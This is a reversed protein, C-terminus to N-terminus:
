IQAIKADIYEKIAKATALTDNTVNGNSDTLDAKDTLGEISAQSGDQLFPGLRSLNFNGNEDTAEVSLSAPQVYQVKLEPRSLGGAEPLAKLTNNGSGVHFFSHSTASVSSHRRFDVTAGSALTYDSPIPYDLILKLTTSGDATYVSSTNVTEVSKVRRPYPKTVSNGNNNTYSDNFLLATNQFILEVVEAPADHLNTKLSGNDFYARYPSNNGTLQPDTGLVISSLDIYISETDSYSDATDAYIYPTAMMGEAVAGWFGYKSLCGSMHIRSGSEAKVGMDTFTFNSNEIFASGGNIVICGMSGALGIQHVDSLSLMNSEAQSRNYTEYFPEGRPAQRDPPNEANIISLINDLYTNVLSSIAADGTGVTDLVKDRFGDQNNILPDFQSLDLSSTLFIEYATDHVRSNGGRPAQWAMADLMRGLAARYKDTDDAPYTAVDSLIQSRNLRIDRQLSRLLRYVNSCGTNRNGAYYVLNYPDCDPGSGYVVNSGSYVINVHPDCQSSQSLDLGNKDWDTLAQCVSERYPNLIHPSETDPIHPLFGDVLCSAGGIGTSVSVDELRPYRYVTPLDLRYSLAFGPFDEFKVANCTFGDGVRLLTQGVIMEDTEVTTEPLKTTDEYSQSPQDAVWESRPSLWIEPSDSADILSDACHRIVPIVTNYRDDTFNASAVRFYEANNSDAVKIVDGRRLSFAPPSNIEIEVVSDDEAISTVPLVALGNADKLRLLGDAIDSGSWSDLDTSLQSINPFRTFVGAGEQQLGHAASLVTRERGDGSISFGDPVVLTRDVGYWGAELRIVGEADMDPRFDTKQVTNGKLATNLDEAIGTLNDELYKTNSQVIFNGSYPTQSTNLDGSQLQGTISPPLITKLRNAAVAIAGLEAPSYTRQNRFVNALELIYRNNSDAWQSFLFDKFVADFIRNLEYDTLRRSTNLLNGLEQEISYRAEALFLTRNRVLSRLANRRRKDLTHLSWAVAVAESLSALPDASTLGNRDDNGFLQSVYIRNALSRFSDPPENSGEADNSEKSQQVTKGIQAILGDTRRVWRGTQSSAQSNPQIFGSGTGTSNEEWQYLGAPHTNDGKNVLTQLKDQPQPRKATQSPTEDFLLVQDLDLPISTSVEWRGPQSSDLSDPKVVSPPSHGLSSNPNWYYLYSKDGPQTLDADSVIVVNYSDQLDNSRLQNIDGVFRVLEGIDGYEALASKFDQQSIGNQSGVFISGPELQLSLFRYQRNWSLGTYVDPGGDIEDLETLIIENNLNFKASLQDVTDGLSQQTGSAVNRLGNSTKPLHAEEM